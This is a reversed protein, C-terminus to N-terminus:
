KEVWPLLCISRSGLLKFGDLAFRFVLAPDAVPPMPKKDPFYLRVAADERLDAQERAHALAQDLGGLEDILGHELAQQGTWVRGGGIADVVEIDIKRSDAVRELFIAYTRQIANWIKARQVENWPVVPDFFLAAEGRNILERNVFLKELLGGLSFKGYLVGISGTITNAQAFIKQGPTAVYYGGSAAVPGLAILVPKKASVKQLASCM